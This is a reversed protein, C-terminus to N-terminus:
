LFRLHVSEIISVSEFGWIECGYLLISIVIKDFLDLQIDIPLCLRRGKSLLSFMARTAQDRLTIKCVDFKCNFKFFIGFYKFKDVIAIPQDNYTFVNSKRYRRKGFILIKTKDANVTLKWEDCYVKINDLAFQLQTKNNVMIVTDDAYMLVLLKLMTNLMNNKFDLTKCGLDQLFNHLDDVYLAFLIPSLNEGQRLGQQCEFVESNERNLSVCSKVNNYRYKVTIFLKSNSFIQCKILKHWM